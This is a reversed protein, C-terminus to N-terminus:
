DMEGTPGPRSPGAGCRALSKALKREIVAEVEDATAHAFAAAVLATIAVDCAEEIVADRPMQRTWTRALEGTEEALKVLNREPSNGPIDHAIRTAAQLLRELDM